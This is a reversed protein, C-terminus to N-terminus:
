ISQLGEVGVQDCCFKLVLYHELIVSIIFQTIKMKKLM